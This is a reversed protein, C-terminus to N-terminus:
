RRYVTLMARVAAAIVEADHHKVPQGLMVPWFVVEKVAGLFQQAALVPDPVSLRGREHQTALYTVLQGLARGKGEVQLDHALEPFRHHEAVVLRLLGTVEPRRLHTLLRRAFRPLAVDPPEDAAVGGPEFGLLGTYLEAVVARFLDRKSAFHNYVTRKSAGAEAAVADMSAAEYGQALFVRTAAEVIALRKADGRLQV